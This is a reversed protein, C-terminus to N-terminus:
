HSERMRGEVWTGSRFSGNKFKIRGRGHMQDNHWEGEYVEGSSFFYKGRGERIDEVFDGEYVDRNLYFHRGQGHRKNGKWHGIYYGKDKYFGIGFGAPEGQVLKGFFLIEIGKPSLFTLTDLDTNRIQIFAEELEEKLCEYRETFAQLLLSLSDEQIQKVRQQEDAQSAWKEWAQLLKAQRMNEEKLLAVEQASRVLLSRVRILLTSDAAEPNSKAATGRLMDEIGAKLVHYRAAYAAAASLSDQLNAVTSKAEALQEQAIWAKHSCNKTQLYGYAIAGFLAIGLAITHYHKQM